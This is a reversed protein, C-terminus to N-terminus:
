ASELEENSANGQIYKVYKRLYKDRLYGSQLDQQDSNSDVGNKSAHHNAKRTSYFKRLKLPYGSHKYDLGLSSSKSYDAGVKFKGANFEIPKLLEVLIFGSANYRVEVEGNLEMRHLVAKLNNATMHRRCVEMNEDFFTSRSIAEYLDTLMMIKVTDERAQFCSVIVRREFLERNLLPMSHLKNWSKPIKEPWSFEQIPPSVNHMRRYADLLFTPEMPNHITRRQKSKDADPQDTNGDESIVVEMPNNISFSSLQAATIDNFNSSWWYSIKRVPESTDGNDNSKSNGTYSFLGYGNKNKENYWTRIKGDPGFIMRRYSLANVGKSNSQILSSRPNTSSNKNDETDSTEPADCSAVETQWYNMECFWKEPFKAMNIHAPVKRWKKCNKKECQVWQTVTKVAGSINPAVAAGTNRRQQKNSNQLGGLSPEEQEEKVSCKAFAPAWSNMTCLWHDPLDSVNISEPVKRWKKCKMCQVWNVTGATVPEGETQVPTGGPPILGRSIHWASGRLAGRKKVQAADGPTKAAKEAAGAEVLSQDSNRSALSARRWRNGAKTKPKVTEESTVKQTETSSEEPVDCSSYDPNWTNMYCFWKDPLDNQSSNPAISRWKACKDCQVWNDEEVLIEVVEKSQIAKTKTQKDKSDEASPTEESVTRTVKSSLRSKALMAAARNSQYRPTQSEMDQGEDNGDYAVEDVGESETTLLNEQESPKDLARPIAPIRKKKTKTPASSPSGSDVEADDVIPSVDASDQIEDNSKENEEPLSLSPKQDQTDQNADEEPDVIEDVKEISADMSEKEDESGSEEDSDSKQEQAVEEEFPIETSKKEEMTEQNDMSSVIEM